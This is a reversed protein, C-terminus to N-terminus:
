FPINKKVMHDILRGQMAKIGTAKAFRVSEATDCRALVFRPKVRNPKARIRAIQDEPFSAAEAAWFLKAFDGDLGEFDIAALSEFTLGDILVRYGRERLSPLLQKYHRMNEFIDTKNIELILDQRQELSLDHDFRDFKESALTSLNVNISLRKRGLGTEALSRIMVTDLDETLDTFLWRRATLSMGPCFTEELAQVSIYMEHFLVAIKGPEGIFYVPQNFLLRSLDTRLIEEKVKAFQTLNIEKRSAADGPGSAVIGAEKEAWAMVTHFDHSLEFLTYFEGKGGHENTFPVPTKGLFIEQIKDCCGALMPKTIGRTVFVLDFNKMLFIEGDNYRAKLQSFEKLARGINDRSKKLPPLPSIHVHALRYGAPQERIKTLYVLLRANQDTM